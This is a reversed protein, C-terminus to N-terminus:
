ILATANSSSFVEKLPYVKITLEVLVGFAGGAGRIGKLMNADADVIAGDANVVKAGVIQDAGLGFNPLFPGYGGYLAWGAWGVQPTNTSATALGHKSLQTAVEGTLIGGGVKATSSSKDVEVYAIDRMDLTVSDNAHSRGHIDHGGSRVTFNINKSQLFAVLASVENANKPRVIYSPQVSDHAIFTAKLEAYDSSEPAAYQIHPNEKLFAAFTDM